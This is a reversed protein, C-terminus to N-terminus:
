DAEHADIGRQWRDVDDDTMSTILKEWAERYAVQM